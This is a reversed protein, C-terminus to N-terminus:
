ALKFGQQQRCSWEQGQNIKSLSMTVPDRVTCTDSYSSMLSTLSISRSRLSFIPKKAECNQRSRERYRKPYNEGSQGHSACKYRQNVQSVEPIVIATFNEYFKIVCWEHRTIPNTLENFGFEQSIHQVLSLVEM